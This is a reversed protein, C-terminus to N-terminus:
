VGGAPRVGGGGRAGRLAAKGLSAPRGRGEPPRRAARQRPGRLTPSPGRPEGLVKIDAFHVLLLHRQGVGGVGDVVALQLAHVLVQPVEDVDLSPQPRPRPRRPARAPATRGANSDGARSASAGPRPDRHNSGPPASPAAGKEGQSEPKPLQGQRQQERGAGRSARGGGPRPSHAWCSQAPAM